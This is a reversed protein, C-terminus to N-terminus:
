KVLKRCESPLEDSWPLLKDMFSRDTDDLHEPIVTLLYKFYEYPKLNNAKATEAINFAIASAKAGSITDIMVWNKKGICFGQISQEAANNDMPVEGDELFVKLYQEQNISYQLGKHTESNALVSPEVKHVWAFYADVLPKVTLQRHEYREALSLDSLKKEECYIAQIM